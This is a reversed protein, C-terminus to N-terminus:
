DGSLLFAIVQRFVKKAETYRYHNIKLEKERTRRHFPSPSMSLLADEFVYVYEEGLEKQVLSCFQQLSLYESILTKSYKADNEEVARQTKEVDMSISPHLRKRGLYSLLFFGSYIRIHSPLFYHEKYRQICYLFADWSVSLIEGEDLWIKKAILRNRICRLLYPKVLLYVENRLRQKTKERKM